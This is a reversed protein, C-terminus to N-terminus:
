AGAGARPRARRSRAERHVRQVRVGRRPCRARRLQLNCYPCWAGRYFTLVVPGHRLLQSLTVTEGQANPLTFGPAREGVKIGPDPLAIALARAEQEMLERDELTLPSPQSRAAKLAEIQTGLDPVPQLETAAAHVGVPLLLPLAVLLGVPRAM